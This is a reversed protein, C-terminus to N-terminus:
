SVDAPRQALQRRRAILRRQIGLEVVTRWVALAGFVATLGAPIWFVQAPSLQWRALATVTPALWWLIGAAITAVWYRVSRFNMLGLEVEEDISFGNDLALIVSLTGMRNSEVDMAYRLARLEDGERLHVRWGIPFLVERGGLTDYNQSGDCDGVEISSLKGQTPDVWPSDPRIFCARWCRPFYIAIPVTGLLGVVAALGFFISRQTLCLYVFFVVVGLLGLWLVGLLPLALRFALREGRAVSQVYRRENPTLQRRAFATENM